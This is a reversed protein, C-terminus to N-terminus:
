QAEQYIMWMRSSVENLFADLTLNGQAYRECADYLVEYASSGYACIYPTQTHFKFPYEKMTQRYADIDDQHIEWQQNEDNLWENIYEVRHMMESCDQGNQTARLIAAEYQEKEEEFRTRMTDYRVNPYPENAEPHLAYYLQTEVSADTMCELLEIAAEFHESYPNIVYVYLSADTTKRQSQNDFRLPLKTIDAKMVGYLINMSGIYGKTHSEPFPSNVNMSFIMGPGTDNDLLNIQEDVQDASVSRGKELRIEYVQNLKELVSRLAPSNLDPLGNEDNQMVYAQVFNCIQEAYDFPYNIFGVGYYDQAYDREWEIWADLVEDFTAPLPRDNWLMQWYGENIGYQYSDLMCPYAVVNGYQDCLVEKVAPYMSAVDDKLVDSVSLNSVFGKEKMANFTFDAAIMYIDITPDQTTIRRTFEGTDIMSAHEIIVDPHQEDYITEVEPSVYGAVTVVDPENDSQARIHLGDLLIAYRGESLAWAPTESMLFRTQVAAMKEFPAGETSRYVSGSASIYLTDTGSDYALGGAAEENEVMDLSVSLDTLRNESISLRSLQYGKRGERLCILEGEQGACVGCLADAELRRSKGSDLNFVYLAYLNGDDPKNKCVLLILERDTLFSNVVRDPFFIDEAYMCSFDLKVDEWRIGSEDIPGFKGSYVNYGYLSGNGAVIYTVTNDLQEKQTENMSEYISYFNEPADPLSCLREPEKGPEYVYVGMDTLYAYCRDGDWTIAQFYFRGDEDFLGQETMYADDFVDIDSEALALGNLMALAMMLLLSWLFTNRKM